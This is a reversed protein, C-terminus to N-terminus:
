RAYAVNRVELLVFGCGTAAFVSFCWSRVNDQM